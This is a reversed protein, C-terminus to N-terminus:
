KPGKAVIVQHDRLRTVTAKATGLTDDSTPSILKLGGISVLIEEIRDTADIEQLVVLADQEVRWDIFGVRVGSSQLISLRSDEDITVLVIPSPQSPM